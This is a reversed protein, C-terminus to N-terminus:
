SENKGFSIKVNLKWDEDTSKIVANGLADILTTQDLQARVHDRITQHEAAIWERVVENALHEVHKRITHKLWSRAPGQHSRGNEYPTGWKNVAEGTAEKVLDEIYEPTTRVMKVIERQLVDKLTEEINEITM